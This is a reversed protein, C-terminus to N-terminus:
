IYYQRIQKPEFRNLLNSIVTTLEPIDLSTIQNKAKKYELYDEMIWYWNIEAHELALVLEKLIIEEKKM